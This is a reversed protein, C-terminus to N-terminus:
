KTIKIAAYNINFHALVMECKFGNWMLFWIVHSTNWNWMHVNWMHFWKGHSIKVHATNWNWLTLDYKFNGYPYTTYILVLNTDVANCDFKCRILAFLGEFRLNVGMTHILVLNTDVANCDFKCRILAFLGEFRLNVGMTYILVLNTDM